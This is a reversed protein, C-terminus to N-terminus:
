TTTITNWLNRFVKALQRSHLLTFSRISTLTKMSVKKVGQEDLLDVEYFRFDKGTIERFKTSSRPSPTSFNDIIVVEEGAGLLEVCTHAGIFGAGGTVLVAM